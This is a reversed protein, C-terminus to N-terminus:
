APLLPLPDGSTNRVNVLQRTTAASPRKSPSGDQGGARSRRSFGSFLLHFFRDAEAAVSHLTNTFAHLAVVAWNPSGTRPESADLSLQSTRLGILRLSRRSGPTGLGRSDEAEQKRCRAFFTWTQAVWSFCGQRRRRLGNVRFVM